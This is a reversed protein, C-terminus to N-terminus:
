NQISAKVGSNVWIINRVSPFEILISDGATNTIRDGYEEIKPDILETRHARLASLTGEEDSGTLRSYGAVDAAVITTLRRIPKAHRSLQDIGRSAVMDPGFAVVSRNSVQEVKLIYM